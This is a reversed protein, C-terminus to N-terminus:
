KLADVISLVNHRMLSIYDSAPSDKKGLAETYLVKPKPLNAESALKDVLVTNQVNEAFVAKVNHAKILKILKVFQSASPDINETSSSGLIDGLVEFNYRLAFYRFNDHNTILKRNEPPITNVQDFIWSDLAQLKQIYANSQSQYYAQNSPDAYILSQTIIKIIAIANPVSLWTHPDCEHHRCSSAHTHAHGSNKYEYLNPLSASLPIRSAKSKSSKFLYDLWFELGLGNEFILDAKSIFIADKPTPEFTHNDTDPGVIISLNVKNRAIQHVWDGIISNTSVVNLTQHGFLQTCVFFCGSILCLIIKKILM